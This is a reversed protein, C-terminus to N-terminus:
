EALSKDKQCDKRLFVLRVQSLRLGVPTANRTRRRISLLGPFGRLDASRALFLHGGELRQRPYLRLAAKMDPFKRQHQDHRRRIARFESKKSWCDDINIYTWGHNVLGSSVMADAASRVKADDVKDAFCNWSNWGMPPTLALLDGCVIKFKQEAVGMDNTARLIVITEGKQKLM